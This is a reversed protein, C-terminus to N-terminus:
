ASGTMDYQRFLEASCTRGLHISVVGTQLEARSDKDTWIKDGVTMPRNRVAAGWEGAGGPQLSVSGDLYSIRAVRTPPDGAESSASQDAPEAQNPQNSQDDQSALAKPASFSLLGILSFVLSLMLKGSITTKLM